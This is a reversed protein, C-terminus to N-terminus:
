PGIKELYDRVLLEHEPFNVLVRNFAERALDGKGLQFYLRGLNIQPNAAMPDLDMAMRFHRAAEDYEGDEKLLVGIENHILASGSNLALSQRFNELADAARRQDAYILGLNFYVQWNPGGRRLLDEYVAIAEDRFGASQLKIAFEAKRNLDDPHAAIDRRFAELAPQLASTVQELRKSAQRRTLHNAYRSDLSKRYAWAAQVLDGRSEHIEGLLSWAYADDSSPLSSELLNLAELPRNQKFALGAQYFELQSAAFSIDKAKQFYEFAKTYDGQKFYHEGLNNYGKINNSSPGTMDEMVTVQSRWVDNREFTIWAYAVLLPLLLWLSRRLTTRVGIRYVVVALLYAFAYSALYVYRDAVVPNTLFINSVPLLCVLFWAVIFLAQPLRKRSLFVVSALLALTLFASVGALSLINRNFAIEYETSLGVPLFLKALYFFPIQLAVAVRAFADDSGYVMELGDRITNSEIAVSRYVFFFIGALLFFPILGAYDRMKQAPRLYAFTLLVLPLIIVTAKSLLAFLFLALAIAFHRWRGTDIFRLYFDCSLFFFLGSLLVNRGHIFNVPESHVPLVAFLAATALAVWVAAQADDGGKRPFLTANLRLTFGYVAWINLLYLVLNSLHFGLPNWGWVRYDFVYTLDRLPLYEVGNLPSLFIQKLSASQYADQGVLFVNDDWVFDFSLTKLFVALALILLGPLCWKSWQDKVFSFPM